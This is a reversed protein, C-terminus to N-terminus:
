TLDAPVSCSVGNGDKEDGRRFGPDRAVFAHTLPRLYRSEGTHRYTHTHTTSYPRSAPAMAWLVAETRSGPNGPDRNLGPVPLALSHRSAHFARAFLVGPAIRRRYPCDALRRTNLCRCAPHGPGATMVLPGHRRPAPGSPSFAGSFTRTKQVLRKGKQTMFPILPGRLSRADAGHAYFCVLRTIRHM